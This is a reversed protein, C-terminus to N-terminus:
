TCVSLKGVPETRYSIVSAPRAAIASREVEPLSRSRWGGCDELPLFGTNRQETMSKMGLSLEHVILVRIFWLEARPCALM